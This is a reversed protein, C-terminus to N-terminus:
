NDRKGFDDRKMENFREVIVYLLGVFLVLLIAKEFVSTHSIFFSIFDPM